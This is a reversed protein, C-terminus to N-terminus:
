VCGVKEHFAQSDVEGQNPESQSRKRKQFDFQCYIICLTFLLANLCVVSFWFLELFRM